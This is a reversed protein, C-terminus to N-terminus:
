YLLERPFFHWPRPCVPLPAIYFYRLCHTDVKWVWKIVEAMTWTSYKEGSPRLGWSNGLRDSAAVLKFKSWGLVEIPRDGGQQGIRLTWDDRSRSCLRIIRSSAISRSPNRQFFVRSPYGVLPRWNYHLLSPQVFPNLIGVCGVRRCGMHVVRTSARGSKPLALCVSVMNPVLM